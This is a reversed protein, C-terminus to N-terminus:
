KIIYKPEVHIRIPEGVHWFQWERMDDYSSVLKNDWLYGPLEDETDVEIQDFEMMSANYAVFKM